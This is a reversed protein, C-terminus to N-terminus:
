GAVLLRGDVWGTWGNSCLVRAWAGRMETVQVPLNGGLQAVVQGNPDPAAWAQMGQPPVRHGPAFGAQAPVPQPTAAAYPQPYAAAAPQAAAQPQAYPSAGAEPYTPSAQYSAAAPTPTWAAPGPTAAGAEPEPEAAGATAAVPGAEALRLVARRTRALESVAQLLSHKTLGDLVIWTSVAVDGNAAAVTVSGHRQEELASLADPSPASGDGPSVVQSLTLRDGGSPMSATVEGAGGELVLVWDSDPDTREGAVRLDDSSACWGTILEKADIAM